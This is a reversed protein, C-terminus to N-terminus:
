HHFIYGRPTPRQQIFNRPDNAFPNPKPSAWSKQDRLDRRHTDYDPTVWIMISGSVNPRRHAGNQWGYSYAPPALRQPTSFTPPSFLPKVAGNQSLAPTSTTFLLTLGAIFLLKKM